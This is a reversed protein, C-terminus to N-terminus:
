MERVEEERRCVYLDLSGGISNQCLQVFRRSREEIGGLPGQRMVNTNAYRDALIRRRKAHQMHGM